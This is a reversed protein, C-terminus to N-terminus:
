LGCYRERVASADAHTVLVPLQEREAIGNHMVSREPEPWWNGDLALTRGLEHALVRYAMGSEAVEYVYVQARTIREGIAHVETWGRARTNGGPPEGGIMVLVDLEDGVAFVDCGAARNWTSVAAHLEDPWEFDDNAGVVIPTHDWRWEGAFTPEVGRECGSTALLAVVLAAIALALAIRPGGLLIEFLKVM